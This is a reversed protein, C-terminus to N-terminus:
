RDANDSAPGLLTGLIRDIHREAQETDPELSAGLVGTTLAPLAFPAAGATLMFLFLSPQDFGPLYGNDKALQFLPAMTSAARLYRSLLYDLRRGGRISEHLILRVVRPHRMSTDLFGRAAARTAALPDATRADARTAHPTMAAAYRDIARDIVARWLGEKSTFYHRVLGHAVGAQGTVDRISAAEFGHEAFVHEAADLLAARTRSTATAANNEM